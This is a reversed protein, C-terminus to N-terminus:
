PVDHRVSEGPTRVDRDSALPSAAADDHAGSLSIQYEEIGAHRKLEPATLASTNLLLQTQAAAIARGRHRVSVQYAGPGGPLEIGIAQGTVDGLQLYASPFSLITLYAESWGDEDPRNPFEDHVELHVRVRLLDQACVVFLCWETAAVVEQRAAALAEDSGPANYSSADRLVFFKYDPCFIMQQEILKM